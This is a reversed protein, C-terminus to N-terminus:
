WFKMKVKMKEKENKINFLPLNYSNEKNEYKM